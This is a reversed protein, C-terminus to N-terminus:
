VENGDWVPGITRLVTAREADTRAVFFHVMGAGLDFGDLVVYATLSFAVLCFWLTEMVGAGEPDEEPGPGPLPRQAGLLTGHVRPAHLPRQRRLRPGVRGRPHAPPRAGAVAPTGTRRDAMRVHQLHLSVPPPVDPGLAARANRVAEAALPPLRLPVDRRHLRHRARGHHSLQLLAAPHEPAVARAPLGRAGPDRRALPSPHPLQARPPSRPPQRAAHERRRAPRDPRPRRGAPDPLARGDRRVHRAPPDRREQGALRRDPLRRAADR